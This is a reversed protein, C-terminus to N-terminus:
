IYRTPLDNEDNEKRVIAHPVRVRFQVRITPPQELNRLRPKYAWIACTHVSLNRVAMHM